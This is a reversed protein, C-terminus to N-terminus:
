RAQLLDERLSFCVPRSTKCCRSARIDDAYIAKLHAEPFQFEFQQREEEIFPSFSEDSVFTITGSTPTDTRNNKTGKNWCSTLLVFSSLLGLLIYSHKKNM